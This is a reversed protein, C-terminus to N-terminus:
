TRRSRCFAQVVPNMQTPGSKSAAARSPRLNTDAARAHRTHSCWMRNGKGAPGPNGKCAGDTFAVVASDCFSAVLDAAMQVAKKKQAATRTKASGLGSGRTGRVSQDAAVGKALSVPAEGSLSINSSTARYVKAGDKPSYRIPSRGGISKPMGSEDVEVWVAKGKFEAPAWPM